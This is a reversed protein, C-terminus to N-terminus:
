QNRDQWKHLIASLQLWDTMRARLAQKTWLRPILASILALSDAGAEFCLRANDLTIGGIAVLPKDTLTRARKLGEIGVTPDPNQKSATPFVPGFALYDIPENQAASIQAPNHTSFGIITEPPVVRRAEAPTLDEQGVHLADANLLAAYDARDNVVFIAENQLCLSHIQEAQLLTDRTWFTKHRFQLIGAGAELWAEAALVADPFLGTDLIPYVPPLFVRTSEM